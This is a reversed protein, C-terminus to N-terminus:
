EEIQEIETLSYKGEYGKTNYIEVSLNTNETDKFQILYYEGEDIEIENLGWVEIAEATLKYCEATPINDNLTMDAASELKATNIYVEARVESKKNDDPNIGMKFNAEEVYEKAKAKILLMNTKLEELKAKKIIEKGSYISIGTIILLVIVTIVLSILTVGKTKKM